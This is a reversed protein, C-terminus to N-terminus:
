REPGRVLAVHDVQDVWAVGAREGAAEDLEGLRHQVLEGLAGLPRDPGLLGSPPISRVGSSIPMMVTPMANAASFKVINLMSLLRKSRKSSRMDLKSLRTDSM